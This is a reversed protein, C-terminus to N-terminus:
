RPHPCRFPEFETIMTLHFFQNCPSLSAFPDTRGELRARLKAAEEEAPVDHWWRAVHPERLWGEVRGLDGLAMPRLEIVVLLMATRGGGRPWADSRVRRSRPSATM